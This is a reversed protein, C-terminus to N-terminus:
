DIHLEFINNNKWLQKIENMWKDKFKFDLNTFFFFTTNYAKFVKGMQNRVLYCTM